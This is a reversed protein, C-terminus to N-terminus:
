RAPQGASTTAASDGDGLVGDIYIGPTQLSRATADMYRMVPGAGVTLGCCLLLLLSVPVAELIVVRPVEREAEAWLTRIGVRSAAILTGFGSGVLLVVLLWIVPPIGSGGAAVRAGFLSALITFKALFGSLPPLGALLLACGVFALGVFAISGPIVVGAEGVDLFGDDEDGFAERTVALLDAGPERGREILEILLFFMALGLTSSVLYFLAGGIAPGHGTAVVALLTGSSVLVSYGALNGLTQAALVGVMGFALTLLGGFLLWGSGFGALAAPDGGFMPLWLRLVAYVGVKTMIAFAAGVPASAATYTPVLWFCLPWMGAKLLLAVGLVAVGAHALGRETEPLAPVRVALDAMNLTGTVGYLLSIGILLLSAGTVNVAIYHLGARVRRNGTGHLALGYSAALLVELFVFLNFLDGTLFAGNLGVLLFLFLSHFHPGRRHWEASAFVVSTVALVAALLVMLASLRDLVLVIGFPMDWNGVRYAWVGASAAASRVLLMATVVLALTTLVAVSAKVTRRREDILLLGAGALLPLVIPVIVLHGPIM